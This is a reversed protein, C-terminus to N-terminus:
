IPLSFGGRGVSLVQLKPIMCSPFSKGEQASLWPRKSRPHIRQSYGVFSMRAYNPASRFTGDSLAHPPAVPKLAHSEV